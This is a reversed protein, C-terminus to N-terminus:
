IFAVKSIRNPRASTYGTLDVLGYITAKVADNNKDEPVDGIIDGERSLKWKYVAPRGTDPNPAGGLESILGRCKTNIFINPRGTLPNVKLHRKLCENGDPILVRNSTLSVNAEKLWIEAVPPMAQHQTAYIDITGTSRKTWWPRQGCFDIIQSTVLGTEYVEDVIFIDEGRKQVVMIAYYHAYGPDIWLYIPCLPDFEYEGGSGTHVANSFEYFVRGAPPCPTAGFREMFREKSMEREMALIEPDERGLPFSITNCWTPMNFSKYEDPKDPMQWRQYLEPYWGLSSEFSGSMFLWGRKEILRGRLRLYDEYTLQSAECAIIGDPAEMALKRPDKASKTVVKFGGAINIEGPDIRKTANYDWSLKDLGSCIYDFEARTRDYDAAVLWYLKGKGEYFRSLFEMITMYSKGARDGGVFLKNRAPHNHAVAQEPFPKYELADFIIKRQEDSPM